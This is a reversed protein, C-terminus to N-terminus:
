GTAPRLLNLYHVSKSLFFLFTARKYLHSLNSVSRWDLGLRGFGFGKPSSLHGSCAWWHHARHNPRAESWPAAPHHRLVHGPVASNCVRQGLPVPLAAVVHCSVDAPSTSGFFFFFMMNEVRSRMGWVCVAEQSVPFNWVPLGIWLPARKTM